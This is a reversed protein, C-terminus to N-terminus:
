YYVCQLDLDFRADSTKSCSIGFLPVGKVGEADQLSLIIKVSFWNFTKANPMQTQQFLLATKICFKKM